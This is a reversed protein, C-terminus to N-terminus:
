LEFEVNFSQYLQFNGLLLIVFNARNILKVILYGTEEVGYKNKFFRDKGEPGM